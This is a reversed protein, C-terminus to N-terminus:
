DNDEHSEWPQHFRKKSFSEGELFIWRTEPTEVRTELIKLLFIEFPLYFVIGGDAM